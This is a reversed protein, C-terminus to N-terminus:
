LGSSRRGTGGGAAASGSEALNKKGGTGSVIWKELDPCSAPEKVSVWYIGDKFWTFTKILNNEDIGTVSLERSGEANARDIIQQIYATSGDPNKGWDVDFDDIGTM